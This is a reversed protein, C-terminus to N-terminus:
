TPNKFWKLEVWWTCCKREADFNQQMIDNVRYNTHAYKKDIEEIIDETEGDYIAMCNECRDGKCPTEYIEECTPPYFREETELYIRRPM